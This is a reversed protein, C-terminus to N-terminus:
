HLVHHSIRKLDDKVTNYEDHSLVSFVKGILESTSITEEDTALMLLKLFKEGLEIVSSDEFQDEEQVPYEASNFKYTVATSNLNDITRNLAEIAEIDSHYGDSSVVIQEVGLEDLEIPLRENSISLLYFYKQKETM